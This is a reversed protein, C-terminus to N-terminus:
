EFEKLARVVAEIKETAMDARNTFRFGLEHMATILESRRLHEQAQDVTRIRAHSSFDKDNLSGTELRFISEHGHYRVTVLKTGKKIVEGDWGGRPVNRSWQEFVQVRDGVKLDYLSTM